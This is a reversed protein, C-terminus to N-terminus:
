GRLAPIILLCQEVENIKFYRKGIGSFFASEKGMSPWSVM